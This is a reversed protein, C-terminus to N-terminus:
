CVSIIICDSFCGKFNGDPILPEIENRSIRIQKHSVKSLFSQIRPNEQKTFFEEPTADALIVGGDMFLIRDAVERAFGMEHTVVIM